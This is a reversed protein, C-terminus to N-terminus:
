NKRTRFYPNDYTPCKFDAYKISWNTARDHEKTLMQNWLNMAFYSQGKQSLHFCDESFFTYDTINEKTEALRMDKIFKILNIEFDDRYQFEKLDAIEAIRERWIKITRM